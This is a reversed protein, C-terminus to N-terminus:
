KHNVSSLLEQNNTKRAWSVRFLMLMPSSLTSNSTSTSDSNIHDGVNVMVSLFSPAYSDIQILSSHDDFYAFNTRSIAWHNLTSAARGPVQTQNRASMYHRVIMQLELELSELAEMPMQLNQM